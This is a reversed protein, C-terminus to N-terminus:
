RGSIVFRLVTERLFGHVALIKMKDINSIINYVIM